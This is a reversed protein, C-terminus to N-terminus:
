LLLMFLLKVSFVMVVSFLYDLVEFVYCSDFLLIIYIYM